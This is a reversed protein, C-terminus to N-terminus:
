SAMNFKRTRIYNIVESADSYEAVLHYRSKKKPNRAVNFEFLKYKNDENSIIYNKLNHTCSLSNNGYINITPNYSINNQELEKIINNM